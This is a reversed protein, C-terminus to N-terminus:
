LKTRVLDKITSVADCLPLTKLEYACSSILDEMTDGSMISNVSNNLFSVNVKTPLVKRKDMYIAKVLLDVPKDTFGNSQFLIQFTLLTFSENTSLNYVNLSHGIEKLSSVSQSRMEFAHVANHIDRLVANLVWLKCESTVAPDFVPNCKKIIDDIRLCYPLTHNKLEWRDHTLEFFTYFVCKNLNFCGGNEAVDIRAGMYWSSDEDLIAFITIGTLRHAGMLKRRKREKVLYDIEVLDRKNSSCGNGSRSASRYKSQLINAVHGAAGRDYEHLYPRQIYESAKEVLNNVKDSVKERRLSTTEYLQALLGAKKLKLAALKQKLREEPTQTHSARGSDSGRQLILQLARKHSRVLRHNTSVDENSGGNM